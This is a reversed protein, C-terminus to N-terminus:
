RIRSNREREWPEWRWKRFCQSTSPVQRLIPRIPTQRTPLKLLNLKSEYLNKLKYRGSSFNYLVQRIEDIPWACDGDEKRLLYEVKGRIKSQLGPSCQGWLITFFSHLNNALIEKEELHKKLLTMYVTQRFISEIDDRVSDPPPALSPYIPPDDFLSNMTKSSKPFKTAVFVEAAEMVDKFSCGKGEPLEEKLAFAGGFLEMKGKFPVFTDSRQKDKKNRGGRSNNRRSSSSSTSATANNGATTSSTSTVADPTANSM